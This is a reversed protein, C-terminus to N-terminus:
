TEACSPEQVLSAAVHHMITVLCEADGVCRHRRLEQSGSNDRLTQKLKHWWGDWHRSFHLLSRESQERELSPEGM